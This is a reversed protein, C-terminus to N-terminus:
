QEDYRKLYLKGEYDIIGIQLNEIAGRRGLVNRNFLENEAFYVMADFEYADIL